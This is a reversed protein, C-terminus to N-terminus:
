PRLMHSYASYDKILALMAHHEFTKAINIHFSQSGNLYQGHM